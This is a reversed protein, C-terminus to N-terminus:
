PKVENSKRRFILGAVGAFGLVFLAELTVFFAAYNGVSLRRQRLAHAEEPSLSWISPGPGSTVSHLESYILPLSAAFLAVAVLSLALWALLLRHVRRGTGLWTTSM